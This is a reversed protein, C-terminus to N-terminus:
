LGQACATIQTFDRYSNGFIASKGLSGLGRGGSWEKQSEFCCGLLDAQLRGRPAPMGGGGPELAM